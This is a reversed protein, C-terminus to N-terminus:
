QLVPFGPQMAALHARFALAQIEIELSLTPESLVQV